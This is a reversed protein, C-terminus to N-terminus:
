FEGEMWGVAVGCIVRGNSLQDLAAIQKAALMANRQALVIISTGLRVRKTIGAVFALTTLAELVYGFVDSHQKPVLIHDTTWVSDFGLEEAAASVERVAQASAGKGYNPLGVGFKM